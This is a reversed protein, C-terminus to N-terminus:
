NAKLWIKGNEYPMRVHCWLSRCKHGLFILCRGRQHVMQCDQPLLVRKVPLFPKKHELLNTYVTSAPWTLLHKISTYMLVWPALYERHHSICRPEAQSPYRKWAEPVHFPLSKVVPLIIFPYPCRDNTDTFLGLLALPHIKIAKFPLCFM